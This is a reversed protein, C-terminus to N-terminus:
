VLHEITLGEIRRYDRIDLTAVSFGLSLQSGPERYSGARQYGTNRGFVGTLATSAITTDHAGIQIGQRQLRAWVDAYVRAAKSSPSGKYIEV